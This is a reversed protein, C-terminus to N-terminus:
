FRARERSGEGGFNYVDAGIATFVNRIVEEYNQEKAKLQLITL